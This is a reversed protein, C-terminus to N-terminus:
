SRIIYQINGRDVNIIRLTNNFIFLILLQIERRVYVTKDSTIYLLPVSLNSKEKTIEQM